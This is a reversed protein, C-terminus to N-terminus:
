EGRLADVPDIRTARRAPILMAILAAAILGGAVAAFIRPDTPSVHYLLAGLLRTLALAGGGGVALGTVVPISGQKIVLALVDGSRAGLAMRIGFEHRRQDALYALVGYIGIAALLAALTAFVSMLWVAFRERGLSEAMIQEMSQPTVPMDPDLALIEHRIAGTLALPDGATKIIVTAVPIPMQPGLYYIHPPPPAALNANKIAGM